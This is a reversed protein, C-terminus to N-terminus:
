FFFFFFPVQKEAAEAAKAAKAAEAADDPQSSRTARRNSSPVVEAMSLDAARKALAQQKAKEIAQEKDRELQEEAAKKAAEQKEKIAAEREAEAKARARENQVKSMAVCLETYADHVARPMVKPDFETKDCTPYVRPPLKRAPGALPPPKSQSWLHCYVDFDCDGERLRHLATVLSHEPHDSTPIPILARLQEDDKHETALIQLHSQLSDCLQPSAKMVEGACRMQEDGYGVFESLLQRRDPKWKKSATQLNIGLELQRGRAEIYVQPDHEWVADMKLHHHSLMRQLGKSMDEKGSHHLTFM